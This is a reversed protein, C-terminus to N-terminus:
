KKITVQLIISDKGIIQVKSGASISENSIAGWTTGKFAIKGMKEPTIDNEVIATQGIFEEDIDSGNKAISKGSFIKRVYKRLLVLSLVTAVIFIGLQFNISIDFLFVSLSAIWAGIGFFLIIQGPIMMEIVFFLIGLLFWILKASFFDNM